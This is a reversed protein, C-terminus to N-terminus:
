DVPVPALGAIRFSDRDLRLGHRNFLQMLPIYLLDRYATGQTLEQWWHAYRLTQGESFSEAAQACITRIDPALLAHLDELTICDPLVGGSRRQAALLLRHMGAASVYRLTLDLCLGPQFARGDPRLCRIADLVAFRTEVPLARVTFLSVSPTAAPIARGPAFEQARSTQAHAALVFANEPAKTLGAPARVIVETYRDHM